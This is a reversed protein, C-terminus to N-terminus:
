NERICMTHISPCIHHTLYRTGTSRIPHRVQNHDMLMSADRIGHHDRVERMPGGYEKREVVNYKSMVNGAPRSRGDTFLVRMQDKIPERTLKPLPDHAYELVEEGDWPLFARPHHCELVLRVKNGEPRDRRRERESESM